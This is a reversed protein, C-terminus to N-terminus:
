RASCLLFGLGKVQVLGASLIRSLSASIGAGETHIPASAGQGSVLAPFNVARQIMAKPDIPVADGAGGSQYLYVHLRRNKSVEELVQEFETDASFLKYSASMKLSPDEKETRGRTQIEILARFEGGTTAGV